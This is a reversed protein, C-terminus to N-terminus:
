RGGVASAIRVKGHRDCAAYYMRYRNSGIRVVSMDEAHIADIGDTGYGAGELICESAGFELGDASDAAFIRSRYGALDTAISAAAFNRSASKDDAANNSPHVPAMQGPEIDQWASFIMTWRGGPTEPPLVEAATIGISDYKGQRDKMRVGPDRVFNLGDKTSASIVSMSIRKGTLGEPGYASEFIYLRGGGDPLPLYRPGGVGGATAFRIGDELTWSLMDQSIASAIVTPTSAPGRSEFYMRWRGDALRVVSPALVRRNMHPIELRPAIRIGPETQFNVGDGSRASLIYGQCEPFPKAPGVATYFLRYGGEPLAVICPAQLKLSDLDRSAQIRAGPDRQWKVM